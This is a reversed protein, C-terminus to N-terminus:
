QGRNIDLQKIYSIVEPISSCNIFYQYGVSKSTSIYFINYDYQEDKPFRPGKFKMCVFCIYNYETRRSYSSNSLVRKFTDM